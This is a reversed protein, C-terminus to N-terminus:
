LSFTYSYKVLLSQQNSVPLIPNELSRDANLDSNYVIFLDNGERPNYRFRINGLYVRDLSNYQIFSSITLKTSFALDAKIRAVQTDFSQGRSDFRIDNYEYTGSLSLGSSINYVPSFGITTKKGDFFDGTEFTSVLVFSKNSSTGYNISASTFFYDDVPITAIDAVDFSETIDDYRFNLGTELIAGNKWTVNYGLGHRSSNFKDASNDWFSAGRITPGHRQIRSDEGAWWQYDMRVGQRTYDTRELFGIGADFDEGLRSISAGYNFGKASRSSMSLWYMSQDPTLIQTKIDNEFAQAFKVSLFTQDWVMINADFGTVLNYQGDADLKYTSLLGIDSNKNIVQKKLRLISYNNSLFSDTKQTQMSILGVDWKGSRGTLRAGGLIPISNGDNDIGIRRSYFLDNRSGIRFSFIGSREQFFLRKEPFFLSFRSLNVQQDDAEVQAFDTNVTLDLTFNNTLGVKVDLGIDKIFDNNSEYTTGAVNLDNTKNFGTLAYPTVYFPKTQKINEFVYEKSQSPRWSGMDGLKPSIDPSIHVENTRALYRWTTVGMTVKGDVVQYQLSRFPIRMEAFWGEETVSVKVDWFNNWSTNMNSERQGDNGIAADFRSGTPTTFFGLSNQKDNYSDIVMGFWGTSEDGGDRQLNNARIRDPQSDYLAGSLYIYTDDYAMRIVTRETPDARHVPTQVTLDFPAINDWEGPSIRGDFVFDASITAVSQPAEQAFCSWTLMFLLTTIALPRM